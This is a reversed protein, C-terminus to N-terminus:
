AVRKYVYVYIYPPMNNHPQTAGNSGGTSLTSHWDGYESNRNIIPTDPYSEIRSGYGSYYKHTHPPMEQITLTHTAEGGTTGAIENEEYYTSSDPNTRTYAGCNLLFRSDNLYEFTCGHWSFQITTSSIATTRRCGLEGLTKSSIYYSGIPYMEKFLEDKKANIKADILENIASTLCGGIANSATTNTTELKIATLQVSSKVESNNIKLIDYPNYYGIGIYRDSTDSSNYHYKIMGCNISSAEKGFLISVNQNNGVNSRLVKLDYNISASTDGVTITQAKTFTNAANLKAYNSDNTLVNNGGVTLSTTFSGNSASIDGTTSINVSTNSIPRLLIM